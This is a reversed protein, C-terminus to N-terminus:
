FTDELMDKFDLGFHSSIKAFNPMRASQESSSVLKPTRRPIDEKQYMINILESMENYNPDDDMANRPEKACQSTAIL